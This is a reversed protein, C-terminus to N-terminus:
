KVVKEFAGAAMKDVLDKSAYIDQPSLVWMGNDMFYLRVGQCEGVLWREPDKNNHIANRKFMKATGDSDDVILFFFPHRTPRGFIYGEYKDIEYDPPGLYKLEVNHTQEPM